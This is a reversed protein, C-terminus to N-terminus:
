HLTYASKCCEGVYFPGGVDTVTFCPKKCDWCIHEPERPQEKVGFVEEFARGFSEARSASKCWGELLQIALPVSEGRGYSVCYDLTAKAVANDEELTLCRIAERM